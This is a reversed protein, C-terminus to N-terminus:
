DVEEYRIHLVSVMQKLAVSHSITKLVWFQLLLLFMSLCVTEGNFQKEPWEKVYTKVSSDIDLKGKDMLRGAISMTM